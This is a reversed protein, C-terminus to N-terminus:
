CICCLQLSAYSSVIVYLRSTLFFRLGASSCVMSSCISRFRLWRSDADDGDEDDDDDEEDGDDDNGDIDEDGDDDDDEDDEDDDDDGDDEFIVHLTIFM